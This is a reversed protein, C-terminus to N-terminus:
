LAKVKELLEDIKEDPVDALKEIGYEDMIAKIKKTIGKDKGQMAIRKIEGEITAREAPTKTSKKEEVSSRSIEPKQSNEGTQNKEGETQNQIEVDKKESLDKQQIKAQVETMKTSKAFNQLVEALTLMNEKDTGVIDYHDLTITITM